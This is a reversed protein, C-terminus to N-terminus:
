PMLSSSFLRFISALANSLSTYIFYFHSYRLAVHLDLGPM